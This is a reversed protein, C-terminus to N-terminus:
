ISELYTIIQFMLNVRSFFTIDRTNLWRPLKQIGTALCGREYMRVQGAVADELEELDEFSVGRMNEKLRPFLDYDCPSPDPSYPPHSLTRMELRCTTVGGMGFSTACCKWTPHNAIHDPEYSRVWTDDIAVIRSVTIKIKNWLSFIIVVTLRRQVQDFTLHHPVWRASVKQMGLRNRIISHVIGHSLAMDQALEECTHRRDSELIRVIWLLLVVFPIYIFCTLVDRFCAKVIKVGKFGVKIYCFPNVLTYM